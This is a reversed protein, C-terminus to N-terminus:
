RETSIAVELAPVPAQLGIRQAKDILQQLETTIQADRQGRGHAALARGRALYFDSWPLPEAMTYEELAAAYREVSDWDGDELCADMALRYFWLYNHGVCDQQLIKEGEVLAVRRAEKDESVLALMGLAWPGLFTPGTERAIAVAEQAM